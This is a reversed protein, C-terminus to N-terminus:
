VLGRHAPIIDNVETNGVSLHITTPESLYRLYYLLVELPLMFLYM